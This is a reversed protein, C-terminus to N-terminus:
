GGGTFKANCVPCVQFCHPKELRSSELLEEDGLIQQTPGDAVVRGEKLIITRSCLELVMDLDHAAIIITHQFTRLLRILQRRAWPDLNSTPEDMVLIDPSMSLVSAIAVSRKEGGSLRYPPRDKLPIEGNFGRCCMALHVRQARDLTRLLLQGIM